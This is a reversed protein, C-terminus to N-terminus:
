WEKIKEVNYRAVYKSYQNYKSMQTKFKNKDM